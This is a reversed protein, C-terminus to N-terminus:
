EHFCAYRLWYVFQVPMSKWPRRPPCRLNSPINSSGGPLDSINEPLTKGRYRVAKLINGEPFYLRISDFLWKRPIRDFAATLDVFCFPIKVNWFKTFERWQIYEIKTGCNRRFENQEKSVQKAYWARIRELIINIILKWVTSWINLGRHNGYEITIRSQGKERGSLKLDLIVGFSLFISTQIVQIVQLM